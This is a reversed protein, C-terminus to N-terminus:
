KNEREKKQEKEIKRQRYSAIENEVKQTADKVPTTLFEDTTIYGAQNNTLIYGNWLELLVRTNKDAYGARVRIVDLDKKLRDYTKEVVNTQDDLKKKYEDHERFIQQITESSGLQYEDMKKNLYHIGFVSDDSLRIHKRAM